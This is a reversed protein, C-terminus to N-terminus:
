RATFSHQDKQDYARHDDRERQGRKALEKAVPFRTWQEDLAAGGQRTTVRALPARGHARLVM